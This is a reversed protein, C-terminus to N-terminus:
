WSRSNKGARSAAMILALPLLAKDTEDHGSFIELAPGDPKVDLLSWVYTRKKTMDRSVLATGRLSAQDITYYKISLMTPAHPDDELLGQRVHLLLLGIRATLVAHMCEAPTRFPFGKLTEKRKELNTSVSVHGGRPFCAEWLGPGSEKLAMADPVCLGLADNRRCSPAAPVQLQSMLSEFAEPRFNRVEPSIRAYYIVFYFVILAPVVLAMTWLGPKLARREKKSPNTKQWAKLYLRTALITAAMSMLWLIEIRIGYFLLGYKGIQSTLIVLIMFSSFFAAYLGLRRRRIKEVCGGLLLLGLLTFVCRLAVEEAPLVYVCYLLSLSLGLVLVLFLGELIAELRPKTQLLHKGTM